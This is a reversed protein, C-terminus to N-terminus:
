KQSLMVMTHQVISDDKIECLSESTFLASNNTNNIVKCSLYVRTSYSTVFLSYNYCSLCSTWSTQVSEGSTHYWKVTNSKIGSAYVNNISREIM